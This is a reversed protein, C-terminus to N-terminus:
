FSFAYGASIIYENLIPSRNHQVMYSLSINHYRNIDYEIGAEYRFRTVDGNRYPEDLSRILLFTEQSVFPSWRRGTDYSLLFRARFFWNPTLGNEAIVQDEVRGQLRGRVALTIPKWKKKWSLDAFFGHRTSWYDLENKQILRYNLSAKLNKVVTYQIGLQTFCLDVTELNRNMRVQEGLSLQWRATLKHNVEASWWSGFDQEQAVATGLTFFLIGLLRFFKM